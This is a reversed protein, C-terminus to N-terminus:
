GYKGSHCIVSKKEREECQMKKSAEIEKRRKDSIYNKCSRSTKM